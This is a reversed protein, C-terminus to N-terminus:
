KVGKSTLVDKVLQEVDTRKLKDLLINALQEHTHKGILHKVLEERGILRVMLDRRM